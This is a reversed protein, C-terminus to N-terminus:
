LADTQNRIMARMPVFAGTKWVFDFKDNEFRSRSLFSICRVDRPLIRPLEQDLTLLELEANAGATATVIRRFLMSGDRMMFVIHDRGTRDFYMMSHLSNTVQIIVAGQPVEERLTIDPSWTPIWFERTSGRLECLLAKFRYQEQRDAFTFQWVQRPTGLGSRDVVLPLSYDGDQFSQNRTFSGQLAGAMDPSFDLVPLGKYYTAWPLEGQIEESEAYLNLAFEKFNAVPGTYDIQSSMRMTRAPLVHVRRTWSSQTPKKLVLRDPYVESIEVAEYMDPSAYIIAVSDPTFERFATEELFLTQSGAGIDQSTYTYSSWVPVAFARNQWGWMLAEFKQMEEDMVQVSYNYTIKPYDTLAARQEKGSYSTLVTGYFKLSEMYDKELNPPYALVVLRTGEVRYPHVHDEWTFMFRADIVPPGDLSVSLPYVRQQLPNFLQPMAGTTLELGEADVGVVSNLIKAEFFANWVRVERSQANLLQGLSMVAPDYHIREYFIDYFSRTRLGGASVSGPPYLKGYGGGSPYGGFITVTGRLMEVQDKVVWGGAPWVKPQRKLISDSYDQGGSAELVKHDWLTEQIVIAGEAM